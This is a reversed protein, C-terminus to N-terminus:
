LFSLFFLFAFILCPFTPALLKLSFVQLCYTTHIIEKSTKAHMTYEHTYKTSKNDNAHTKNPKLLLKIRAEGNESLWPIIPNNRPQAKSQRFTKSGSSTTESFNWPNPTSITKEPFDEVPPHLCSFEELFPSPIILCGLETQNQSRLVLKLSIMM